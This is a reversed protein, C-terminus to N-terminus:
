ADAVPGRFRVVPDLHLLVRYSLCAAEFDAAASVAVAFTPVYAVMTRLGGEPLGLEAMQERNGPLVRDALKRWEEPMEEDTLDDRDPTYTM